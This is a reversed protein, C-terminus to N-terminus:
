HQVDYVTFLLLIIILSFTRYDCHITLYKLLFIGCFLNIYYVLLPYTKHQLTPHICYGEFKVRVSYWYRVHLEHPETLSTSFAVYIQLGPGYMTFWAVFGGVWQCWCWLVGRIKESDDEKIVQHPSLNQFNTVMFLIITKVSGSINEDHNYSKTGRYVHM